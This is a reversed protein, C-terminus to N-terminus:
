KLYIKYGEALMKLLREKLEELAREIDEENEIRGAVLESVYVYEIKEEPATIKEIQKIANDRIVKAALIDSDMQDITALCKECVENGSLIAKECSKAVLPHLITGQEGKSLLSYNVHGKVLDMGKDFVEKRRDHRKEYAERYSDMIADANQRILELEEYFNESAFIGKLVEANEAVKGDSGIKKLIPLIVSLVQKATKITEAYGGSLADAIRKVKERNEKYSAGEGALIMVCDDTQSNLVNEVTSKFDDITEKL